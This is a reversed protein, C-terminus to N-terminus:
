PAGRADLVQDAPEPTGGVATIRGDVVHVAGESLEDSVGDFITANIISLSESM